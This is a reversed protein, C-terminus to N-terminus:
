KLEKKAARLAKLLEDLYETRSYLPTRSRGMRILLTKQSDMVSVDLNESKVRFSRDIILKSM